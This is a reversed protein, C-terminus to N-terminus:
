QGRAAAAAARSEALRRRREAREANAPSMPVAPATAAGAVPRPPPAAAGPKPAASPRAQVLRLVRTEDGRVLTVEREKFAKIKWGSVDDATSVRRVKGGISALMGGTGEEEGVFIGYIHVNALPDPPPPPAPPKPPPPPRRTPSFLPRELVQAFAVMDPASGVSHAMAHGQADPVLPAPPTWSLDRPQGQEDLWMYALGAALALNLLILGHVPKFRIM